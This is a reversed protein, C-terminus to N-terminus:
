LFSASVMTLAQIVVHLSLSLNVCLSHCIRMALIYLYIVGYSFAPSTERADFAVVISKANFHQAVSRGIRYAIAEDININIEGRIDYAKFCTLEKQM